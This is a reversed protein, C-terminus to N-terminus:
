DSHKLRIPGYSTTITIKPGNAGVKGELTSDGKAQTSKLASEGLESQIEGSRSSASLDFASKAPLALEITGSDNTLDIEEKPAATLRVTIDGRKNQVRIRGSIDELNITKDGTTLLLPSGANEVRLDGSEVDMRGPLSGITLDTHVSVFRAGKAVNRATIPGYFEGDITAAGGVDEVEVHSGKGSVHVNSKVGSIHADGRGIDARVDGGTDRVEVNGRAVTVSVNGTIEDARVDGRSTRLDLAVNKPLHVEFSVRAPNNGGSAADTNVEIGASTEHVQVHAASARSHAEDGSMAYATKRVVIRLQKEDPSGDVSIDGRPTNITVLAGPRLDRAPLEETADASESFPNDLEDDIQLHDLAKRSVSIGVGVVLVLLLLFVEGGTMARTGPRMTLNEVLRIVGLLILLLPWWHGIWTWTVLDPRYNHVLFLIGILILMMSGLFTGRPRGNSM